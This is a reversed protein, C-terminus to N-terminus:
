LFFILQSNATGFYAWVPSIYSTRVGHDAMKDMASVAGKIDHRQWYNHVM